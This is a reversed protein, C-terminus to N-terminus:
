SHSSSCCWKLKLKPFHFSNFMAVGDEAEAKSLPVAGNEAEVKPFSLFKLMAFGDEAEAKPLSLFTWKAILPTDEGGRSNYILLATKPM